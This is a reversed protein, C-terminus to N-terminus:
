GERQRQYTCKEKDQGLLCYSSIVATKSIFKGLIIQACIRSGTDVVLYSIQFILGRCSIRDSEFERCAFSVTQLTGDLKIAIHRQIKVTRGQLHEVRVVNLGRGMVHDAEACFFKSLDDGAISILVYGDLISRDVAVLFASRKKLQCVALVNGQGAKCDAVGPIIVKTFECRYVTKRDVIACEFVLDKRIILLCCIFRDLEIDKRGRVKLGIFELRERHLIYSDIFTCKIINGSGYSTMCRDKVIREFVDSYRVIGNIFAATCSDLAIVPLINGNGAVGNGVGGATDDHIRNVAISSLRRCGVSSIKRCGDIGVQDIRIVLTCRCFILRGEVGVYLDAVVLYGKVVFFIVATIVM